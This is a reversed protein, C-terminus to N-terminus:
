KKKTSFNYCNLAQTIEIDVKALSTYQGDSVSYVFRVPKKGKFKAPADFVLRELQNATLIQGVKVPKGNPLRLTGKKPLKTVTITLSDGDPDTPATLGLKGGRSNVSVTIKGSDPVPPANEGIVTVTVIATSKAGDIDTITYEFTTERTEGFLLTDFEGNPDFYAGSRSWRGDQTIPAFTGSAGCGCV